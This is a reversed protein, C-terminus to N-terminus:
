LLDVVEEVCHLMRLIGINEPRAPFIKESVCIQKFMHCLFINLTDRSIDTIRNRDGCQVSTRRLFDLADGHIQDRFLSEMSKNFAIRCQESILIGSLHHIIHSVVIHRESIKMEFVVQLILVRNGHQCSQHFDALLSIELESNLDRICEGYIHLLIFQWTFLHIHRPFRQIRQRDGHRRLQRFIKSSLQTDRIGSSRVEM